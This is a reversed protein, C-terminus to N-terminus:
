RLDFIILTIRVKGPPLAGSTGASSWTLSTSGLNVARQASAINGLAERRSGIRTVLLRLQGFSDSLAPLSSKAIALAGAM